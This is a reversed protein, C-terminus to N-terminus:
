KLLSSVIELSRVKANFDFIPTSVMIEQSGTRKIFDAIGQAVKEPGGVVSCALMHSVAIKEQPSWHQNIDDVPPKLKFRFGGRVLSTMALQQSTFLREAEGDNDAAIINLAPMAYPKELFKSPQFNAYYHGLAQDLAAPAFHSAFSYPLGMEAALNAGFLSSGLIWIPIESGGGPYAQIADELSDKSLYHILERVDDPFREANSPNRRLARLTQIDTGPARGLGLEIRGPYLADLTGFQEAIILPSHNPLMIGGSGVKITKTVSALHAIVVSTAASAIAPTNHHEAVWIRNFGLKEAEVAALASEKLALTSDGGEKVYVLDLLSIKINKM